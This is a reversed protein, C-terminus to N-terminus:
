QTDLPVPIGIMQMLRLANGSTVPGPYLRYDFSMEGNAVSERFHVLTLRQGLEGSLECLASDHTSVAGLAGARLLESLVFRAGIQRERSNTGHLIEDLLFLVPRGGSTAALAHKLKLLEAYFHSVGGALDDRVRMSTVLSLRGIRLRKACVPGGALGLVAALGIARLYTSKGSMNSGTVLLAAGPSLQQVDNTVRVDPNILPHGLDQAQFGGGEVEVQAFCSRPEDHALGALSSLAEVDGLGAFWTRLHHGHRHRWREFALWCHVDWLLLLNVFPYITGNHRLDFWGGIRRLTNLAGSPVDTSTKIRQQLWDLEQNSELWQFLPSAKELLRETTALMENLARIEPRTKILVVLHLVLPTLALTLPLVGWHSLLLSTTSFALLAWAIVAYRRSQTPVRNQEAWNLLPELDRPAGLKQGKQTVERTGLALVELKQRFDIQRALTQVAAQRQPLDSLEDCHCLLQFLRSQGVHTQAVCLRQFLSGPGLLDLDDAYAHNSDRFQNGDQPLSYWAEPTVRAAADENVRVWLDECEEAAIVRSHIVALTVFASLGLLSLGVGFKGASGFVAFGGAGAFVVFALGRLNSVHLSRQALRARLQRHQHAREQYFAASICSPSNM